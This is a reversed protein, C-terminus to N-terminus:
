SDDEGTTVKVEGVPEKVEFTINLSQAEQDEVEAKDWAKVKVHKGILDLAKNAGTSDFKYAAALEGSETSVVVPSGDRSLIPEEQMCRDYVRKASRLVWEADIELKECTKATLEGIRQAIEPKKLNEHGTAGATKESYGAKIAAQTANLSVAYELCFREQKSTLKNAM